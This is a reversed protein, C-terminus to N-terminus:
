LNILKTGYGRILQCNQLDSAQAQCMTRLETDGLSIDLHQGLIMGMQVEPDMDM